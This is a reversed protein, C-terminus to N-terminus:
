GRYFAPFALLLLAVPILLSASLVTWVAIPRAAVFSIPALAPRDEAVGVAVLRLVAGLIVGLMATYILAIPALRGFMSAGVILDTEVIGVIVLSGNWLAHIGVGLLYGRLLARANGAQRWEWWGLMVLGCALPHVAAGMSRGVTIAPWPSGFISGFTAYMINEVIAFGVGSAVGFLFADRRSKPRAIVGGLAKAIEETLPAVTALEILLVLVWPSALATTLRPDVRLAEVLHRGSDAFGLLFAVAFGAVLPYALIAVLPGILAGLLLPRWPFRGGIRGWTAALVASPAAAAAVFLAIPPAELGLFLAWGIAAIGLAGAVAAVLYARKM